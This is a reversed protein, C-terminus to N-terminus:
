NNPMDWLWQLLPISLRRHHILSTMVATTTASLVAAIYLQYGAAKDPADKSKKLAGLVRVLGLGYAFAAGDDCFTKEVTHAFSHPIRRRFVFPLEATSAVHAAELSLPRFLICDAPEM